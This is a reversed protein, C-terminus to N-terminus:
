KFHPSTPMPPEEVPHSPTTVSCQDSMPPSGEDEAVITLTLVNEVSRSRTGPMYEVKRKSIIEGSSSDISFLDSNERLRYRVVSNPGPGDDDRATVRGILSVSASTPPLMM